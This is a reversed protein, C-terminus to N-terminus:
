AAGSRQRALLYLGGGILAAPLLFNWLGSRTWTGFILIEFFLGFAAFLTLGTLLARRGDRAQTESGTAGSQILQGLGAAAPILAWVYAWTEFRGTANQLLLILGITTVVAGPIALAAGDRGLFMGGLLLLGPLLVFLPWGDEGFNFGFSRAAFALLGFVVLALGIVQTRHELM